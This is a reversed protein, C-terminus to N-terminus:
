PGKLQELWHLYNEGVEKEDMKRTRELMDEDKLPEFAAAPIEITYGGNRDYYILQIGTFNYGDGMLGIAQRAIAAPMKRSEEEPIRQSNYFGLLYVRQSKLSYDDAGIETWVYIDSDFQLNSPLEEKVAEFRMRAGRDIEAAVTGDHITNSKLRYSLNPANEGTAAYKGNYWDYQTEIKQGSRTMHESYRTLKKEAIMNGAVPLYEGGSLFIALCVPM